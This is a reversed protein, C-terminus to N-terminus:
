LSPSHIMFLLNKTTATPLREGHSRSGRVHRDSDALAPRTRSRRAAGLNEGESEGGGGEVVADRNDAGGPRALGIGCLSEDLSQEVAARAYRDDIRKADPPSQACAGVAARGTIGDDHEAAAVGVDRDGGFHASSEPM